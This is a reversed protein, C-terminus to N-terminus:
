EKRESIMSLTRKEPHEEEKVLKAEGAEYMKRAEAKTEASVTLERIVLVETLEREEVTWEKMETM